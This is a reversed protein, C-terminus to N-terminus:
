CKKLFLNQLQPSLLEGSKNFSDKKKKAYEMETKMRTSIAKYQEM